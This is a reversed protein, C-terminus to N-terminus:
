NKEKKKEKKKKERKMINNLWDLEISTCSHMIETTDCISVNNAVQEQSVIIDYYNADINLSLLENMCM